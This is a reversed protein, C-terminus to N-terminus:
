ARTHAWDDRLLEYFRLVRGSAVIEERDTYRFGFKKLIHESAANGEEVDALLRRLGLHTFAVDIFARSAETAFGRRWYPRAVLYGLNAETGNQGARLGCSGIYKEEEKLIMAWLGYTKTPRGLYQDRFRQQAKELSWGQGGMYRRVEADMHMRIFDSEDASEHGRFRLRETELFTM